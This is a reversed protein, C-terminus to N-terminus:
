NLVACNASGQFNGVNFALHGVIAAGFGPYAPIRMTQHGGTTTGNALGSWTITCDMVRNV